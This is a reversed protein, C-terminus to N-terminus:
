VQPVTVRVTLGGEASAEATVTGGWEAAVRRSTALGLGHGPFQGRPHLRQFPIFIKELDAPAVGPGNDSVEIELTRNSVLRTTLRIRPARDSHHFKCANTLLEKLVAQLGAPVQADLENRVEVEAGAAALAAKRELLLGRLLLSLGTVGERAGADYYAMTANLLGSIEGAATVAEQLMAQDDSSLGAGGRRQVLQIRTVVTRLHTRLDHAFAFM